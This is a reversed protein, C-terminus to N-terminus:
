IGLDISGERNYLIQHMRYKCIGKNGKEKKNTNCYRIAVPCCWEHAVLCFFCCLCYQTFRALLTVQNDVSKGGGNRECGVGTNAEEEMEGVRRHGNM